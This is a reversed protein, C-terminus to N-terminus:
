SEPTTNKRERLRTSSSSPLTRMALISRTRRVTPINHSHQKTTRALHCALRLCWFNNPVRNLGCLVVAVALQFAKRVTVEVPPQPLVRACFCYNTFSMLFLFLHSLCSTLRSLCASEARCGSSIHRLAGQFLPTRFYEVSTRQAQNLQPPLIQGPWRPHAGCVDTMPIEIQNDLARTSQSGGLYWRTIVM